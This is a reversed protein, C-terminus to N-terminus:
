SRKKFIVVVIIIVVVAGIGAGLVLIVLPDLGPTTTGSTTTTTETTTGTTTTTTTTVDQVTVVLITSISSGYTNTVVVKLGYSGVLLVTANELVGLGDITFHATDNVSWSIPAPAAANLDYVFHTGIAITQDVPTETWIPPTPIFMLPHPDSNATFTYSTDGFDD